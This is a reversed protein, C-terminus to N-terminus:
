DKNTPPLTAQLALALGSALLGIGFLAIYWTWGTPGTCALGDPPCNDDTPPRTTTTVNQTTTTTDQHITTTTTDFFDDPVCTDDETKVYGEDCVFDGDCEYDAGGPPCPVFESTTTPETTPTTSDISTSTTPRTVVTTLQTTDISDPVTTTIPVTTAPTNVCAISVNLSTFVGTDREHPPTEVVATVQTSEAIFRFPGGITNAADELGAFRYLQDGNIVVLVNGRHISTNNATTIACSSGREVDFVGVVISHNASAAAPWLLVALVAAIGLRFTLYRSM